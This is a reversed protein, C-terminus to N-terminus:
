ATVKQCKFSPIVEKAFRTMQEKFGATTQGMPFGIMIQEVGPYKEEIEKIYAITSDPNGAFWAKKDLTKRFNTGAAIHRAVGSPGIEKMQEDTYRLMGLPAAFKVHEEFLLELAKEAKATSDDLYAWLGIGLNGGLPLDRGYRANAEQFKHMYEDVYDAHTGLILGKIDHKAM